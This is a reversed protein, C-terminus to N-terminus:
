FQRPLDGYLIDNELAYRVADITHNDRDPYRDTLEGRGTREYEYNTFERMAVPCFRPDIIIRYQKRLWRLGQAVSGKGKMTKAMRQCGKGRLNGIASPSANDAIIPKYVVGSDNWRGRGLKQMEAFIGDEFKGYVVFEDFIYVTKRARDYGVCVFATPDNEFGFDLGFRQVPMAKILEPPIERVQINEFVESGTGTPIGLYEHRYFRPNNAKLGNAERLFEEGLWDPNGDLYTTHYVKRGKMPKLSEANVWNTNSIPPNYSYFSQALGQGRFVSQRLTRIERMGDFQDLEELWLFRFRGFPPKISKKKEVKDLGHFFIGQQTDKRIIRYPKVKCEFYRRLDLKGIAWLLQNYVSEEIEAAVKRFVITHWDAEDRPCAALMAAIAVSIYSSKFSGRGGGFWQEVIPTDPVPLGCRKCFAPDAMLMDNWAGGYVPAFLDTAQVSEGIMM